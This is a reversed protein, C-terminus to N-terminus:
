VLDVTRRNNFHSIFSQDHIKQLLKTHMNESVWLLDKKFLVDDIIKCNKLKTSYLKLKNESIVQKYENCFKKMQNVIYIWQYLNVESEIALVNIRDSILITQYHDETRQASESIDAISM